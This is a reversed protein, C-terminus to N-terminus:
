ENQILFINRNVGDCMQLEPQIQELYSLLVLQELAPVQRSNWNGEHPDDSKYEFIGQM